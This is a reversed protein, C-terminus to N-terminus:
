LPTRDAVIQDRYRAWRGLSASAGAPKFIGGEANPDLARFGLTHLLDGILEAAGDNGRVHFAFCSVEEEDGMSVETDFGAGAIRGWTPDTFDATPVVKLIGAIIDARRGLVQPQFDDPIDSLSSASAPIDQVFLGRSM